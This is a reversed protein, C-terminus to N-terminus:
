FKASKTSGSYNLCDEVKVRHSDKLETTNRYTFESHEESLQIEFGDQFECRFVFAHSNHSAHFYVGSLYLVRIDRGLEERCERVLTEHITEGPDVAGGPLTWAKAGYTTRVFLTRDEKDTFVAHVSLRYLDQYAVCSPYSSLISDPLFVLHWGSLWEM